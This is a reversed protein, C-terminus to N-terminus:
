ARFLAVIVLLTFITRRSHPNCDAVNAFPLYYMQAVQLRGSRKDRRSQQQPAVFDENNVGDRVSHTLLSFFFFGLPTYTNQTRLTILPVTLNASLFLFLSKRARLTQM